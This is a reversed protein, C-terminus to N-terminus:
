HYTTFLPRNDMSLRGNANPKSIIWVRNLIFTNLEEFKIFIDDSFEEFVQAIKEIQQGENDHKVEPLNYPKDLESAFQLLTELDFFGVQNVFMMTSLGLSVRGQDCRLRVFCDDQLLMVQWNEIGHDTFMVSIVHFGQQLLFNFHMGITERIWYFKQDPHTTMM